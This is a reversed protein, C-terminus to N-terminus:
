ADGSGQADKARRAFGLRRAIGPWVGNPMFMISIGLVVGYLVQKVGPVDIGFSALLANLSESLLTLIAAGLIPGFLTGIGGIIPVLVIEISRSINFIQDPFLNSYYFAYFVGALATLGGSIQVAYLKYRFTDIGAARAADENDRIARFYYGARGHLLWMSVVFALTALALALYYFMLPGGRLNAWDTRGGSAVRIFFGAAGGIWPFNEFGIRTFEAFAITLLAFYTGSIGFRFALWGIATAALVCVAIAVLMGLWPSISFFQFLAAATYAGLGVYLANGLSLQGCLGMMINWAQGVYALTLVLILTTLVYRDAVLPLLALLVVLTVLARRSRAPSERWIAAARNTV